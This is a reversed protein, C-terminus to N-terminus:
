PPCSYAFTPLHYLTLGARSRVVDLLKERTVPMCLWFLEKESTSNNIVFPKVQLDFREYGERVDRTVNEVRKWKVGAVEVEGGVRTVSGAEIPDEEREDEDDTMEGDVTVFRDFETAEDIDAGGGVDGSGEPVSVLEVHEHLVQSISGDDWRVRYKQPQAEWDQPLRTDGSWLM